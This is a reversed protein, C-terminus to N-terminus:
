YKYYNKAITLCVRLLLINYQLCIEILSFSDSISQVSRSLLILLSKICKNSIRRCNCITEILFIKIKTINKKLINRMIKGERGMENQRFAYSCFRLSQQLMKWWNLRVLM